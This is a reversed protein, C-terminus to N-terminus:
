VIDLAKKNYEPFKNMRRRFITINDCGMANAIQIWDLESRGELKDLILKDMEAHYKKTLQQKTM